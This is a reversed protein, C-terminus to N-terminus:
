KGITWGRHSKYNGKILVGLEGISVTPDIEKLDYRTGEVVRGDKHTFKYITKDKREENLKEIVKAQEPRKRGTNVKRAAECGPMTNWVKKKVSGGSYCFYNEGLRSAKGKESNACASQVNSHSLGYRRATESIGQITEIFNLELDYVDVPLGELNGYEGGKTRNYGNPTLTNYKAIYHPEQDKVLMLWDESEELVEIEFNEPGHEKIAEHLGHGERIHSSFRKEATGKTFGIYSMNNIKNTARYIVAMIDGIVNGYNNIM